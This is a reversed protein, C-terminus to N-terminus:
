SWTEGRGIARYSNNLITEDPRWLRCPAEYNEGRDVAEGDETDYLKLNQRMFASAVTLRQYGPFPYTYEWVTDGGHNSEVPREAWQPLTDGNLRAM